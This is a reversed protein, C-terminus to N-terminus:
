IETESLITGSGEKKSCLPAVHSDNAEKNCRTSLHVLGSLYFKLWGLIEAQLNEEREGIVGRKGGGM